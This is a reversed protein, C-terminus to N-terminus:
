AKVMYFLRLTLGRKPFKKFSNGEDCKFLIELPKKIDFKRDNLTVQRM